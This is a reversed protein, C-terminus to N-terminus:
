DGTWERYNQNQIGIRLLMRGIINDILDDITKPNNYFTPTPPFIIAGSDSANQMLRLHGSHLPAERVALLLPRGEKLCVDAARHILDGAYSNSVASLTKISCPAIIMGQTFFSGSAIQSGIDKNNYTVSALKEIKSIDWDTEHQITIQAADSIILHSEIDLEKLKQLTRIGFISGSAGTIALIIRKKENM